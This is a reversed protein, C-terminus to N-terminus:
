QLEKNWGQLLKKKFKEIDIKVCVRTLTGGKEDIFTGGSLNEPKLHVALRLVEIQTFSEDTAIVAALPDWFYWAKALLLPKNQELLHYALKASVSNQQSELRKYFPLDIPAQNTLDLPVLTLTVGSHFVKKAAYPDLYINWEAVKNSSSPDVEKINGPVKLAGGMLYIQRVKNKLEPREEFVESLTTLPGLALINLPQPTDRLTEILLAKATQRPPRLKAQKPFLQAIQDGSALIKKPFHHKGQLPTSRGCAVPIKPRQTLALLGKIIRFASKCHTNGDAEITIAKIKIQPQNLLYLFALVDDPGVDTDIVWAPSSEALKAYSDPIFFLIFVILSIFFRKRM